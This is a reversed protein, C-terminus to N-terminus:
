DCSKGSNEIVFSIGESRLDFVYDNYDVGLARQREQSARSQEIASPSQDEFFVRVWRNGARASAWNTMQSQLARFDPVAWDSNSVILPDPTNLNNVTYMSYASTKTNSTTFADSQPTAQGDPQDSYPGECSQGLRARDACASGLNKFTEIKLSIINCAGSVGPLSVSARNGATGKNCSVFIWGNSHNTKAYLCNRWWSESSTQIVDLSITETKLSPLTNSGGGDGWGSIRKVPQNKRPLDVEAPNKPEAPAPTKKVNVGEFDKSCSIFLPQPLLALAIATLRLVLKADQVFM